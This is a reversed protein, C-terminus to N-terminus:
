SEYILIRLKKILDKPTDSTDTLKIILSVKVLSLFSHYLDTVHSFSCLKLICLESPKNIPIIQTFTM